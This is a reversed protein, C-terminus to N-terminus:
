FTNQRAINIHGFTMRRLLKSRFSVQIKKIKTRNMSRRDQEKQAVPVERSSVKESISAEEFAYDEEKGKEIMSNKGPNANSAKM